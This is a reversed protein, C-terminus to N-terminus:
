PTVHDVTPSLEWFAIHTESMKWNSQFPFNEPLLLSMLRLAGPFVLKKESYRDVFGDRVFIRTAEVEGYKREVAHVPVFPYARQVVDGADRLRGLTLLECVEVITSTPDDM